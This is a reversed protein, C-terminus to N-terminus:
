GTPILFGSLAQPSRRFCQKLLPKTLLDAVTIIWARSRISFKFRLIDNRPAEHLGHERLVIHNARDSGGVAGGTWKLSWDCYGLIDSLILSFFILEILCFVLM